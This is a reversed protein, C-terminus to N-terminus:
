SIEGEEFEQLEKELQKVYQDQREPALLPEPEEPQHRSWRQLVRYLVVGVIILALFPTIWALLNFGSKTPASRIKEGFQAVYALVIEDKTMGKNIMDRIENRMEESRGCECTYLAMTCGCTCMLEKEVQSVTPTSWLLGTIILLFLTIRSYTTM